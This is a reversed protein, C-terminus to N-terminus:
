LESIIKNFVEDDDINMKKKVRYKKSIVSEHSIQLLTAIEKNSLNLKLLSIFDMDNKTLVPFREKINNEFNPHVQSFKLAFKKWYNEQKVLNSLAHKINEAKQLEASGSNIIAIIKEQMDALQLAVSTLEQDRLSIIQKQKEAEKLEEEIEKLMRENEIETEKLKSLQLKNRLRSINAFAIMAIILVIIIFGLFIYNKNQAKIKEDLFKNKEQLTKNKEYQTKNQFKAQIEQIEIERNINSISDKLVSVKELSAIALDKLNASKYTKAIANQYIMQDEVNFIHQYPFKEVFDIVTLAEKYKNAINLVEIYEAAIRMIRFSTTKKIYEFAIGGHNLSTAVNNEAAYVLSLKNHAIALLEDSQFLKLGEISELLAKRAKSYEKILILCDGYNILTLYYNRMDKTEKMSHLCEEYLEIAFEFEKNKLYLNALKQKIITLRQVENTNELLEIGKLFYDIAKKNELMYAYNSGMEGYTIAIGVTDKISTYLRLAEDLYKLSAKYNSENRLVNAYSLTTMARYKPHKSAKEIAKKFYYKSSDLKSVQSYYVGTTNYYRAWLSDPLKKEAINKKLIDLYHKTSDPRSAMYQAAKQHIKEFDFNREQSYSLLSFTLTIFLVILRNPM